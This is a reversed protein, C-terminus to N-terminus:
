QRPTNKLQARKERWAALERLVTLFRANHSRHKIKQWADEPNVYYTQPDCLTDIEDQFWSERGSKQLEQKFYEYIHVLHTVDSLAYELQKPNLPRNSWNTFRCSKDLELKLISNVLSEYSPSEGYGCVQAAIQTDFIPFPTKGSLSDAM